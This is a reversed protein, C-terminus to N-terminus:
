SASAFVDGVRAIAQAVEKQFELSLALERGALAIERAANENSRSWDVVALLDSLDAAVPIFHTWPKLKEYYWQAYNNPSKVKLVTGGSLLKRFLGAFSCAHGDIDIHYRYRILDQWPTEARLLHADRLIAADEASIDLLESFGVDFLDAYERAIQCLRARPMELIPRSAQGLSSGRWFVLTSRESWGPVNAFQTKELAYGNSRVFFFDPVLVFQPRNGCFALGADLGADNFNVFSAGHCPRARDVAAFFKLMSSWRDVVVGTLHGPELFGFTFRSGSEQRYSWRCSMAHFPVAERFAIQMRAEGFFDSLVNEIANSERRGFHVEIAQKLKVSVTPDERESRM